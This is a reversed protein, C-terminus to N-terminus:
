GANIFASGLPVIAWRFGASELVEEVQQLFKTAAPTPAYIASVKIKFDCATAGPYLVYVEGSEVFQLYRNVKEQLLALHPDDWELHDVITLTCDGGAYDISVADIQLTQEISM